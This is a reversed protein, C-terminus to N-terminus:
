EKESTIGESEDKFIIPLGEACTPFIVDDPNNRQHQIHLHPESTTGSNGVKGIVQGELVHDGTKVMVSNQKLHALILYTGTEDIKITIYNGLSSTFEEVHPTIDIEDNECAIVTGSIPAYVDCGYIGYVELEKDDISYPEKLIDYAYCESPWMAHSKYEKGGFMVADTVPKTVYIADTEDAHQPYVIPSVGMLVSLPLAFMVSVLLFLARWLLKRRRIAAIVLLVMQILTAIFAVPAFIFVFLSWAYAGLQGGVCFVLVICILVVLCLFAFVIQKAGLKYKKVEDGNMDHAERDGNKIM